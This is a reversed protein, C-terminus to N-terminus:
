ATAGNAAFEVSETRIEPVDYRREDRKKPVALTARLCSPCCVSPDLRLRGFQLRNGASSIMRGTDPLPNRHGDTAADENEVLVVLREVHAVSPAGEHEDVAALGLHQLVAEAM